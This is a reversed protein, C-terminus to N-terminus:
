SHDTKCLLLNDLLPTQKERKVHSGFCALLFGAMHLSPWSVKCSAMSARDVGPLSDELNRSELETSFLQQLTHKSRQRGWPQAELCGQDLPNCLRNWSLPVFSPSSLPQWLHRKHPMCPFPTPPARSGCNSTLSLRFRLACSFSSLLRSIGGSSRSLWPLQSSPGMM